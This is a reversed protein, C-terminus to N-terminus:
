RRSRSAPWGIWLRAGILAGLVNLACDSVSPFRGIISIQLFEATLCAPLWIMLVTTLRARRLGRITLAGLPIVAVLNVLADVPSRAVLVLRRRALERIGSVRTITPSLVDVSGSRTTVRAVLIKGRWPREWTLENGLGLAFDPNWHTLAHAPLPEELRLEDDVSIRLTERRISVRIDRTEADRLVAPVVYPPLGLTDESRRLRLILDQGDQGITINSNFHDHSVTFIRAPGEQVSLFAEVRLDITLEKESIAEGLWTPPGQTQLLGPRQFIASGGRITAGNTYREFPYTTALLYVAILGVLVVLNRKTISALGAQEFM